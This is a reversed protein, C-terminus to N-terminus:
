GPQDLQDAMKTLLAIVKEASHLDSFTTLPGASAECANRADQYVRYHEFAPLPLQDAVGFAAVRLAGILCVSGNPAQFEGTAKGGKRMIEAADRLLQAPTYTSKPIM